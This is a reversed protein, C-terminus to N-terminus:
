LSNRYATELMKSFDVIGRSLERCKEVFLDKDCSDGFTVVNHIVTDVYTVNDPFPGYRFPRKTIIERNYTAILKDDSGYFNVAAPSLENSYMPSNSLQLMKSKFCEKLKPMIHLFVDAVGINTCCYAGGINEKGLIIRDM